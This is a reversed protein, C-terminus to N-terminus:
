KSDYTEPTGTSGIGALKYLTWIMIASFMATLANSFAYAISIVRLSSPRGLDDGVLTIYDIIIPVLNGALIVVSLCFLVTRIRYVSKRQLKTLYPIVSFDISKGFLKAQRILVSVIFAVSIVRAILLFLAITQIDLTM